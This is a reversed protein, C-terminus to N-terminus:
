EHNFKIIKKMYYHINSNIHKEADTWRKKIIESAYICCLDEVDKDKLIFKEISPWRGQIVNQSYLIVDCFKSTIRHDKNLSFYFTDYSQTMNNLIAKEGKPWRGQIVRLSYNFSNEACKLILKEAEKKHISNPNLLMYNYAEKINKFPLDNM